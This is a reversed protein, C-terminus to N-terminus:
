PNCDSEPCEARCIEWVNWGMSYDMLQCYYEPDLGIEQCSMSHVALTGDTGPLQLDVWYWLNTCEEQQQPSSSSEPNNTNDGGKPGWSIRVTLQGGIAEEITEISIGTEHVVGYQYTDTNPYMASGKLQGQRSQSPAVETNDPSRQPSGPGLVHGPKWTDQPDGKNIGRELHFMTDAGLVAVRYHNGNYPWNGQGPFGPNNMRPVSEDVHYVVLGSKDKLDRDFELAQRNELLLYEEYKNNGNHNQYIPLLKEKIEPNPPDQGNDGDQPPTDTQTNGNALVLKIADGSLEAPDLTIEAAGSTKYSWILSKPQIWGLDAKSYASLHGPFDEDNEPGYPYGMIDWVGIGKGDSAAGYDYVDDLGLTHLYEHTMVGMKAGKAGCTGDLASAILYGHLEYYPPPPATMQQQQQTAMVGTGSALQENLTYDVSGKIGYTTWTESSAFAHSWIRDEYSRDNTCDLGGVEAPYGSHLVVVADLKGDNDSDFRTWDWTPDASLATLLPWFSEQLSHRLGSMGAAFAAETGDTEMWQPVVHAHYRYHGYSNLDFWSRIRGNWLADYVSPDPLARDKHDTFRMLLVLITMEPAGAPTSSPNRRTQLLAYSTQNDSIPLTTTTNTTANTTSPTAIPYQIQNSLVSSSSAKPPPPVSFGNDSIHDDFDTPLVRDSSDKPSPDPKPLKHIPFAGQQLHRQQQQRNRHRQAHDQLREDVDQCEDDKLHRCLAPHVFTPTYNRPYLPEWGNQAIDSDPHPPVFSEVFLHQPQCLVLTSLLSAYRQRRRRTRRPAAQVANNASSLPTATATATAPTTCM